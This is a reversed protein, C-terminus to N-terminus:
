PVPLHYPKKEQYLRLRTSYDGKETKDTLLEIAKTQWKVAADFDGSKACAAALTNLYDPHKWETLECAKTAFEVAANGDRQNTHPATALFWALDKFADPVKPKLKIAGRFEAFAEDRRGRAFLAEGLDVHVKADNRNRDVRERLLALEETYAANAEQTRGQESCIEGIEHHLEPNKPHLRLAERYADFVEESKGTAELSHRLPGGYEGGLRLAERYAAFAQSLEGQEHYMIGLFIHDVELAPQIRIAEHLETIALDLRGRHYLRFAAEVRVDRDKPDLRAAERYEVIANEIEGKLMLVNGLNRRVYALTPDIRIAERYEAIADNLDEANVLEPDFGWIPRPLKGMWATSTSALIPVLAEALAAHAHASLPNAAVAATAYRLRDRAASLAHCIQYDGPSLRWARKLVKFSEERADDDRDNRPVELVKALLYLSRAQQAALEEQDAALRRVAEHSGGEILKRLEERWPDPDTARATAILRRWSGKDKEDRASRRNLVWNDLSLAIELPRTREGLLRGADKPDLHDPDIGFERFATSYDSDIKRFNRVDENTINAATSNWIIELRELFKRDREAGKARDSADAQEQEITARLQVVRARLDITPEGADLSSRAQNAAAVAETWKSLDDVPAAKAQGRLLTAKDLAQTVVRETAAQRAARQQSFYAWGGGGLLIMGLVSAALAMTLRFRDREVTARKSAEEARAKEEARAIESQRLRDQVRSHYLSM